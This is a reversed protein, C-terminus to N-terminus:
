CDWIILAILDKLNKILNMIMNRLKDNLTYHNIRITNPTEKSIMADIKLLMEKFIKYKLFIYERTMILLNNNEEETREQM